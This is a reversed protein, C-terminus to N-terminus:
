LLEVLTVMSLAKLDEVEGAVLKALLCRACVLADMLKALEGIARLKRLELLYLDVAVIGVREILEELLLFAEGTPILSMRDIGDKVLHEGLSIGVILLLRVDLPVEGLEEDVLFPLDDLTVLWRLLDLVNGFIDLSKELAYLIM